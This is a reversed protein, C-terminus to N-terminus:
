KKNDKQKKRSKIKGEALDHSNKLAQVVYYNVTGRPYEYNKNMIGARKDTMLEIAEDVEDVTWIHFLGNKIAETIEDNLVLNRVNAKPILVGQEGTLGKLKCIRYFGEVKETVGGVPQVHGHQNISGTVAICQKLPIRSLASVIALVEALSASDGEVYGYVQEFSISVGISFPVRRAYKSGLYGTLIMVAKSHIQGSLDAERQIDLIGSSGLYTKATIRVPLGFDFDGFNVVTLGNVQGVVKGSVDIMLDEKKFMEDYKEVVLKLREEREILARKIDESGIVKSNRKSAFFNAEEILDILAGLKMSLKTRDGSLRTSYWVIKEIADRKVPLTHKERTYDTIFAVLDSVNEVTTDLEWDLEVKVKFLKEFEPDYAYLLEYIEPTGVLIVKVKLPIPDTELSAITSYGYATDVNEVSLQKAFLVKKLRDWVFPHVLLESADIILFGGNAKHLTGPRIMNFDTYLMGEREIYEIKGFLNHYTPTDEYVVPACNSGSNDVILNVSYARKFYYELEALKKTSSVKDIIDEKIKHVYEKVDSYPYKKEIVSFFEETAFLLAYRNLDKVREKYVGELKRVNEIAADIILQVKKENEEFRKREDESLLTFEEEKLVKGDKMPYYSVGTSTFKILFGLAQAKEVLDKTMREQEEELEDDIEKRRIKYDEGEFLKSIKDSLNEVLKEMDKKFDIGKGPPLFIAKAKQPDEFDMVYAIDSPVPKKQAYEGVFHKIFTKRGTGPLGVVFVNYGDKEMDLGFLLAKIARRRGIFSQTEKIQQTTEVYPILRDDVILEEWKIKKLPM